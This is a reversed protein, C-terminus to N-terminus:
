REFSGAWRVQISADSTLSRAYPGAGSSPSGIGAPKTPRTIWDLDDDHFSYTDRGCWHSSPNSM